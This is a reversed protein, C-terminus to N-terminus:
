CCIPSYAHTKTYRCLQPPGANPLRRRQSMVESSRPSRWQGASVTRKLQSVRGSSIGLLAAADNTTIDAALIMELVARTEKAAQEQAKQASVSAERSKRIRDALEDSSPKLQIKWNSHDVEPHLTDLYDRM